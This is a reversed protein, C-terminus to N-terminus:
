KTDYNKVKGKFKSMGKFFKLRPWSKRIHTSSTDLGKGHYWLKHGQSWSSQVVKQFLKVKTM